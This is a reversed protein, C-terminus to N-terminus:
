VPSSSLPQNLSNIKIRLNLTQKLRSPFYILNQYIVHSTYKLKHFDNYVLIIYIITFLSTLIYSNFYIEAM